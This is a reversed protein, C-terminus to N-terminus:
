CSWCCSAREKTQEINIPVLQAKTLTFDMFFEVFCEMGVALWFLYCQQWARNYCCIALILFSILMLTALRTNMALQQSHIWAWPLCIFFFLLMVLIAM